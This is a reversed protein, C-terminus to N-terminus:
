TEGLQIMVYNQGFFPQVLRYEITKFAALFFSITM